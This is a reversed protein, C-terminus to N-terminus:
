GMVGSPTSWFTQPEPDSTRGQADLEVPVYAALLAGEEFLEVLQRPHINELIEPATGGTQLSGVLLLLREQGRM